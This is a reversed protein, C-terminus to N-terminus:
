SNDDELINTKGQANNGIIINLKDNFEIDLDIYNRFNKLSIKNIKLYYIRWLKVDGM